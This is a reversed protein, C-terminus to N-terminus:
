AEVLSLFEALIMATAGWIQRGETDFCPVRYSRDGVNRSVEIRCAPDLLRRLPVSFIDAVEGEEAM